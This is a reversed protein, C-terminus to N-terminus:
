LNEWYENIAKYFSRQDNDKVKLSAAMAVDITNKALIRHVIVSKSKQGQRWIRRILQDYDDFKHTLTFWIVTNGCEQLNLGLAAASAQALLLPLEGRNWQREIKQTATMSVGGSISPTSRGLTKKLYELEHKFEYGILAPQGSMEELLDVLADMKATHVIASTKQLGDIYVSGSAIQRCKSTKIAANAATVRGAVFDARLDKEMKKYEVMAPAPLNVWIDNFILEPLDLYDEASMQLVKPAIKRHIKKDAGKKLKWDFGMFGSKRFYTKKFHTISDGFTEGEDMVYCQGFLDMLGNATASGTLIYRRTFKYLKKKLLRFRATNSHKFKTCNHVLVGEAFFRPCGAVKLNWVDEMGGSQNNKVSVVRIGSIKPGEKPRSSQCENSQPFKRGSRDSGSNRSEWLRGQLQYSLRKATEGLFDPLEMSFQETYGTSTPIRVSDDRYREGESSISVGEKQIQLEPISKEQSGRGLTKGQELLPKGEEYPVDKPFSVRSIRPLGPIEKESRLIQLLVSEREWDKDQVEIGQGLNWLGSMKEQDLLIRGNLDGACVWGVDTFFPHDKTCRISRGSSLRLQVLNQVKRTSVDLVPRPGLDTNVLDGVKLSEIPVEGGPISVLTGTSFCEDVFLVDFPWNRKGKLAGFLWKLGEPNIIYVDAPEWLRNDKEKGHLITVKLDHFNEWKRAENPWTLYAPRLPTIVLVAKNKGRLKLRKVVAYTISTKGLGPELFLGANKRDLCFNVSKRQFKRPLWKM